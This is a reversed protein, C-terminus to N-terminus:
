FTRRLSQKPRTPPSSNRSTIGAVPGSSAMATTAAIEGQASAQELYQRGRESEVSSLVFSVIFYIQWGKKSNARKGGIQYPGVSSRFPAPDDDCM